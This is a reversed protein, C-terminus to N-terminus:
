ETKTASIANIARGILLRVKNLKAFEGFRERAANNYAIAADDEEDFYGLYIRKQNHKIHAMWQRARKRADRWVGKYQSNGVTKTRNCQNQQNTAIRLNSRVNNFGDNDKHDVQIGKPADMIVRHMYGTVSKAYWRKGSWFAQWKYGSLKEADEDDVLAFKGRTLKIQKTM